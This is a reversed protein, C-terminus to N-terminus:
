YWRYYNFLFRNIQFELKVPAKETKDSLREGKEGWSEGTWGMVSEPGGFLLLGRKSTQSSM